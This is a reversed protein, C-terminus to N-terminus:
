GKAGPMHTHALKAGECASTTGEAVGPPNRSRGWCGGAHERLNQHMAGAWALSAVAARARCSALRPVRRERAAAGAAHRRWLQQARTRVGM